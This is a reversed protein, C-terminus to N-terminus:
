KLIVFFYGAFGGSLEGDMRSSFEDCQMMSAIAFTLPKM